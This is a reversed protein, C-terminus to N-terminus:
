LLFKRFQCCICDNSSSSLLIIETCIVNYRVGDHLYEIDRAVGLSSYSGEFGLGIDWERFRFIFVLIYAENIIALSM